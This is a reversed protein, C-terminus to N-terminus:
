HGRRMAFGFETRGNVRSKGFNRVLANRSKSRVERMRKGLADHLGSQKEFSPNLELFRFDVPNGGEDFIM